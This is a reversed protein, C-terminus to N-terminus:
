CAQCWALIKSGAPLQGVPNTFFLRLELANAISNRREQVLLDPWSFNATPKPGRWTSMALTWMLCNYAMMLIIRMFADTFYAAAM